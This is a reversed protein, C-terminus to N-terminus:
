GKYANPIPYFGRDNPSRMKLVVLNAIYEFPDLIRFLGECIALSLRKSATTFIRRHGFALIVNKM